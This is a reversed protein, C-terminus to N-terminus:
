LRWLLQEVEVKLQKEIYKEFKLMAKDHTYKIPVIEKGTKDIYGWKGDIGVMSYEKDISSSKIAFGSAHDYKIPIVVKDTKDIFGTKRNLTVKAIGDFFHEIPEEYKFPIVVSDNKNIFGWKKEYCVAALGETFGYALDYKCDIILNNFREDMFGWKGNPGQWPMLAQSYSSNSIVSIIAFAFFYKKM